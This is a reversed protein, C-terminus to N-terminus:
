GLEDLQKKNEKTERASNEHIAYTKGGEERSCNKAKTTIPFNERRWLVFRIEDVLALSRARSQLSAAHSIHPTFKDSTLPFNKWM